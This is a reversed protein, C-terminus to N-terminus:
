GEMMEYLEIIATRCDELELENNMTSEFTEMIGERNDAIDSANSENMKGLQDIHEIMRSDVYPTFMTVIGDKVNVKYCCIKAECWGKFPNEEDNIYVSELTPDTTAGVGKIEHRKNIQVYM